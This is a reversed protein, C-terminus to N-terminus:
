LIKHCKWASVSNKFSFTIDELKHFLAKPVQVPEAEFIKHIRYTPDGSLM